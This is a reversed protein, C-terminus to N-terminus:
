VGLMRQWFATCLPVLSIQLVVGVEPDLVEVDAWTRCTALLKM